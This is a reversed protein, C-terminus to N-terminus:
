PAFKKPRSRVSSRVLCFRYAAVITVWPASVCQPKPRPRMGALLAHGVFRRAALAIDTKKQSLLLCQGALRPHGRHAM